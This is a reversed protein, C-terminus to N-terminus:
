QLQDLARRALVSHPELALARQYEARAGMKDGRREAINGLRVHVTAVSPVYPGPPPPASLFRRLANEGRELQQGTSAAVRGIYYWGMPDAARRRQYGDLVAFAEAARERDALLVAYTGVPQVSDPFESVLAKLLREAAAYDRTRAASSATLMQGRYRNRKTIEAIEARAKEEGGGMMAPAMSYFQWRLERADVNNPDLTIARDVTHKLRRALFAQRLPNARMAQAGIARALWLHADSNQPAREVAREFWTQAADWRNATFLSIGPALDLTQASATSAVCMAM